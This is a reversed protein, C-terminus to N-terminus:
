DSKAAVKDDKQAGVVVPPKAEATAIQVVDGTQTSETPNDILRDSLSLGSEIEVNNGLNRGLTVPRLAVKDNADVAAVRMGHAGFVLATTPIRLTNADSPIHFDVDAFAGPWLKGDPNDAQLEILATRSNEVLANSTSVLEAEFAEQQGPLRLTAKIGPKLEGLFAQPVNVYVRMRHIDAVQFLARGTTGGANVLDGIDVNRATVVGDFPARIEEFRALEQLRSVAAQQATVNARAVALAANRSSSTLRDTDGQEASSWGQAVLRSTRQDTVKGLDANAQAQEVAAQLQVLQAKAEELQQDLDPASISALVDGKAVHAGIDKNWATVYGSARAFLSGSNFASVNGPLVLQAEAPGREPQVLRVTPVAQENTWAGIEQRSKARDVVGFIAIGIAGVAAACLLLTVRRSKRPRISTESSM